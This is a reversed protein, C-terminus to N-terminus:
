TDEVPENRRNKLQNNLAIIFYTILFSIIFAICGSMLHFLTMRQLNIRHQCFKGYFSSYCHCEFKDNPSTSGENDECSGHGSCNFHCKYECKGNVCWNSTSRCSTNFNPKFRDTCHESVGDCMDTLDCTLDKAPRCTTDKMAIQCSSCCLGSSCKSGATLKCNHCCKQCSEDGVTCDCEEGGEIVGNMCVPVQSSNSIPINYLCHYRQDLTRRRVINRTCASWENTPKTVKGSMICLDIKCGQQCNGTHDYYEDDFGLTHGMEHAIIISIFETSMDSKYVSVGAAIEPANCTFGKTSFGLLDNEKFDKATLLSSTDQRMKPYLEVETYRIFSRVYTDLSPDPKIADKQDWVVLSKLLIHFDLQLYFGNVHNLIKLVESRLFTRNSNFREHFATSDIVLVWEVYKTLSFAFRPSAVVNPKLHEFEDRQFKRINDMFQTNGCRLNLNPLDSERYICHSSEEHDFRIIYNVNDRSVFGEVKDDCLSLSAVVQSEVDSIYYCHGNRAVSRGNLKDDIVIDDYIEIYDDTYLGDNRILGIEFLSHYAEFTLKIRSCKADQCSAIPNIEQHRFSRGEFIDCRVAFICTCFIVTWCTTAVSLFPAAMPVM